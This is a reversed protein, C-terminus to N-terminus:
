KEKQYQTYVSRALKIGWVLLGISIVANFMAIWKIVCGEPLYKIITTLIFLLLTIILGKMVQKNLKRLREISNSIAISRNMLAYVKSQKISDLEEVKGCLSACLLTMVSVLIGMIALHFSWM